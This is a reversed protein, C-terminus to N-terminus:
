AISEKLRNLELEFFQQFTISMTQDRYTDAMRDILEDSLIVHKM